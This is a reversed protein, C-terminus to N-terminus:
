LYLILFGITENKLPCDAKNYIFKPLVTPQPTVQPMESLPKKWPVTYRSRDPHPDEVAQISRESYGEIEDPVKLTVGSIAAAEELTKCEEFPNAIETNNEIQPAKCATLSLATIACLTIAIVKAKKM